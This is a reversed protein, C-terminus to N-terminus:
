IIVVAHSCNTGNSIGFTGVIPKFTDNNEKLEESEVSSIDSLISEDEESTEESKVSDEGRILVEDKQNLENFYSFEGNVLERM